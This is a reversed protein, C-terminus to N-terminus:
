QVPKLELWMLNVAVWGKAVPVIKVDQPGPKEIKITGLKVTQFRAWSGTSPPHAELSSRGSKVHITGPAKTAAVRAYVEYTGSRDFRVSWTATASPDDWFGINDAEKAKSEIGIEPGKLVAKEALMGEYNVKGDFSVYTNLLKNWLAHSFSADVTKEIPPDAPMAQTSDTELGFIQGILLLFTTISLLFSTIM